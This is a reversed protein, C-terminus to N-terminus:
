QRFASPTAGLNKQVFRSFYAQSSFEFMDAIETFSLQRDRLLHRIHITAFRNIWYNAGRGSVNKCVESLYKPTVFLKDAYWTVERHKVYSGENLLAMFRTILSATQEPVVDSYDDKEAARFDFFDLFMIQTCCYMVDDQFRHDDQNYRYEIYRFDADLRHFQEENLQMVPNQYLSLSGKIGYNNKPTCYELYSIKTYISRAEIDPSPSLDEILRQVPIIMANQAGLVFPRGDYTFNLTGRSCLVHAVLDNADDAGLRHLDHDIILNTKDFSM